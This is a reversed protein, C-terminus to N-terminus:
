ERHGFAEAGTAHDRPTSSSSPAARAALARRLEAADDWAHKTGAIEQSREHGKGVLLIVDGPKAVAAARRIARRRDLEVGVRGQEGPALGSLMADIIAVPDESRPNDATFIPVDASAIAAGMAARKGTDRDGGCGGVVILRGSPRLSRTSALVRGLSEPTHAYDVLALVPGAAVRQMRGRPGRLRPIARFVSELDAGLLSAATVVAALNSANHEGLLRTRVCRSGIRVVSGREDAHELVWPMLSERGRGYFAVRAATTAVMFRGYPDDANALAFASAPLSGLFRQKVEAYAEITGHYDLHDHDLSTFVGGDFHVGAIRQQDIGHSTVEMCCSRCGAAVMLAFTRQLEVPDPTTHDNPHRERGVRIGTTAILGSREGLATFLEYLLTAVTTKGNTGTVGVVRLSRSPDGNARAALEGVARVPDDVRVYPVPLGAPPERGGVVAACGTRVADAIFAHGDLGTGKRAVFLAGPGARRSDSVVTEIWVDRHAPPTSEILEVLRM